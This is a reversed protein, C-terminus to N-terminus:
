FQIKTQDDNSSQNISKECSNLCKKCCQSKRIVKDIKFKAMDHQYGCRVTIGDSKVLHIKSVYLGLNDTLVYIEIATTFYENNDTTM